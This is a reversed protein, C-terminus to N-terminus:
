EPYRGREALEPPPTQSPALEGVPGLSDVWHLDGADAVGEDRPVEVPHQDLDLGVGPVGAEAGVVPELATLVAGQCASGALITGYVWWALGRRQAPRLHPLHTAIAEQIAYAERPLRM